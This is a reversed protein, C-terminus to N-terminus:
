HITIFRVYVSVASTSSVVTATLVTARRGMRNGILVSTADRFVSTADHFFNDWDVRRVTDCATVARNFDTVVRRGDRCHSNMNLTATSVCHTVM